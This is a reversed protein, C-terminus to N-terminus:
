RSCELWGRQDRREDQESRACWRERRSRSRRVGDRGRRSEAPNRRRLPRSCFLDPDQRSQSPAPTDNFRRLPHRSFRQQRSFDFRGLSDLASPCRPCELPALVREIRHKRLAITLTTRTLTVSLPPSLLLRSPRVKEADEYVLGIASGPLVDHFQCLLATYYRPEHTFSMSRRLRGLEGDEWLPQLGDRPYKYGGKKFKGGNEVQLMSALTGIFEIDHLLIETKRNHRKISGHSTATGRHLELYLEGSRDCSPDANSARYM